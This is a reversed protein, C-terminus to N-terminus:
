LLLHILGWKKTFLKSYSHCLMKLIGTNQTFNCNIFTCNMGRWSALVAGAQGSQNEIFACGTNIYKGREFNVFVGGSSEARNNIFRTETNIVEIHRGYMAGGNIFASNDKYSCNTNIVEIDRRGYLVGGTHSASNDQFISDTNICTVHDRMYIAGGYQGTNDLFSSATNMCSAQNRLQIAGGSYSAVNYQFISDTNICSVRDRMFIAGGFSGTNNIFRTGINIIEVDYRGFVAGGDDPASNDKFTSNTNTCNAQDRLFIAGGDGPYNLAKNNIFMAGNNTIEVDFRCYIAGGGSLDDLSKKDDLSEDLSAFNDMFLSNTNVCSAQERLYIVGGLKGHNRIYKTEINIIEINREAWIVGGNGNEASNYQFLCGKNNITVNHTAYVVGAHENASNNQFLSGDNILFCSNTLYFVAGSKAAFNSIFSSNKSTVNVFNKGYIVGYEAINLHFECSIMLVETRQLFMVSGYSKVAKIGTFSCNNLKAISVNEIKIGLNTSNQIKSISREHWNDNMPQKGFHTDVMIFFGANYIRIVHTQEGDKKVDEMIFHSYQISINTASDIVIESGQFTCNKIIVSYDVMGVAYIKSATVFTNAIFVSSNELRIIKDHISTNNLTYQENIFFQPKLHFSDNNRASTNSNLDVRTTSVLKLIMLFLVVILGPLKLAKHQIMMDKTMYLNETLISLASGRIRDTINGHYM